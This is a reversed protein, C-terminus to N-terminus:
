EWSKESQMCRAARARDGLVSCLWQQLVPEQEALQVDAASFSVCNIREALHELGLKMMSTEFQRCQGRALEGQDVVSYISSCHELLSFFGPVMIGFDLFIAEYETKEVLLQLLAQYDEERTQCLLQADTMPPIYEMRNLSHLVSELLGQIQNGHNSILYLLDALDRHYEEKLWEGFGSWEGLNVYLTKKDAATVQALTLAFPTQMKSRTPSYVGIIEKNKKCIYSDVRGLELYYEFMRRMIEEASQYKFIAPEMDADWQPVASLFIYIRESEDKDAIGEFGRGWLIIDLAKEQKQLFMKRTSYTHVQIQGGKKRIFYEALRERYADNVECIAVTVKRM